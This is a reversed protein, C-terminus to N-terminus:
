TIKKTRTKNFFIENANVYSLFIIGSKNRNGIRKDKKIVIKLFVQLINRFIFGLNNYIFGCIFLVMNSLKLINGIITVIIANVTKETTSKIFFLVNNCSIDSGIKIGIASNKIKDILKM